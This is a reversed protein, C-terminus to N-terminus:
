ELQFSDEIMETVSVALKGRHSGLHGRMKERGQMTFIVEESIHRQMPIVDGVQLSMLESLTLDGGPMIATLEIQLTDIHRRVHKRVQILEDEDTQQGSGSIWAQPSLKPTVPKLVSAPICLNMAASHANLAIEFSIWACTDSPLAVQVFFPNTLKEELKPLLSITGGWADTIADIADNTTSSLLEMELETLERETNRGPKGTGGLLRDILMDALRNDYQILVRGPLPKMSILHMASPAASIQQIFTGYPGTDIYSLIVDVSTRMKSSLQLGLRRAMNEHIMRLTRLHEKSFRDPQHFDYRRVIEGAVEVGKSVKPLPDSEEASSLMSMLSDVEDQSLLGSTLGDSV